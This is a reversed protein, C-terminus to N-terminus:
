FRLDSVSPDAQPGLVRQDGCRGMKDAGGVQYWERHVRRRHERPGAPSPRPCQPWCSVSWRRHNPNTADFVGAAAENGLQVTRLPYHRHGVPFGSTKVDVTLAGSRRLLGRLGGCGLEPQDTPIRWRSSGFRAARDGAQDCHPGPSGTDPVFSTTWFGETEGHGTSGARM